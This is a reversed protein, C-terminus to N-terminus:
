PSSWSNRSINVFERESAGCEAAVGDNESAEGKVTGVLLNPAFVPYLHLGGPLQINKTALYGLSGRAKHKNTKTKFHGQVGSGGTQM